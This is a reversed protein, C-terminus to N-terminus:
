LKREITRLIASRSRPNKNIENISPFVKKILTCKKKFLTNLQKETIPIGPPINTIKSHHLMFQKVIRDELSHFTIVSFIGGPKLIQLIHKLILQLEEIEKNIFIRIAQFCKTAPHKKLKKNYPITKAIVHALETTRELPRYMQRYKVIAKAIRKSFKEEGFKKLVFAISKQNSTQLWQAASIGTTPNMRMDLPGDIMFSFGRNAVNIQSYSTGLDLLVGNVNGTINLQNTYQLMKSFPGQIYQFNTYTIKKAQTYSEPDKDIAYLMGHQNLHQLILKSHGGHGFTGDIYIGNNVIKLSKIAQDLLVPTHQKKKM